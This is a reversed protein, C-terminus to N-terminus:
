VLRDQVGIPGCVTAENISVIGSATRRLQTVIAGVGLAGGIDRALSRVYTGSGCSIHFSATMVQRDSNKDLSLLELTHIQVTRIPLTVRSEKGQRALAYLRKGRQKVASYLPVEQQIEGRFQELVAVVDASKLQSLVSWDARACEVGTSDLTDTEIGLAITCHYQKDQKLFESQRKTCSRGLLVILLGSALPDLTGAHGVRSIGSVERAWRVVAHSSVGSPKDVLLIGEQDPATLFDTM